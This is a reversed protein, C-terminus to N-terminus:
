PAGKIRTYVFLAALLAADVGAVVGMEAGSMKVRFQPVSQKVALYLGGALGFYTFLMTSYCFSLFFIGVLIGAFSTVLAFGYPVLRRDMGPPPQSAVLFPIKLSVYVLYSWLVMGPFGLEAASLLYSNHATIFYNETFQGWGLGFLPSAKFFDIGDYLAGIRELASSEAGETDRGGLAIVPAAFIAAFAVGKLGYRRVFYTAFIAALVLQGGRSATKVVCFSILVLVAAILVHRLGGKSSAYMALAFSLSAGIFLALENPDGLTGRWRVRGHDVSFTGFVGTKECAYDNEYDKIKKICETVGECDIGTPTGDSMDGVSGHEDRELAICELPALSEKVGFSALTISICVILLAMARLRAFSGTAYTVLLMVLISYGLKGMMTPLPSTGVKVVTCFACWVFFLALFPLQPTSFSKLKGSGFEVVIGIVVIASAAHLVHLSELAPVFEQPRIFNMIVLLLAGFLSV